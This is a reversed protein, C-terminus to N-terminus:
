CNKMHDNISYWYKIKKDDSARVMQWQKPIPWSDITHATHRVTNANIEIDSSILLSKSIVYWIWSKMPYMSPYRPGTETTIQVPNVKVSYMRSLFDHSIAMHFKLWCSRRSMSLWHGGILKPVSRQSDAVWVPDNVPGHYSMLHCGRTHDTIFTTIIFAVIHWLYMTMVGLKELYPRWITCCGFRMLIFLLLLVRNSSHWNDRIVPELYRGLYCLKHPWCPAWRRGSTGLHVGHQGWSGQYRPNEHTAGDNIRNITHLVHSISASCDVLLELMDWTQLTWFQQINLQLERFVM